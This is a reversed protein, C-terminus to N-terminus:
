LHDTVNYVAIENHILNDLTDFIVLGEFEDTLQKKITPLLFESLEIYVGHGRSLLKKCIKLQHSEEFINVGKKYSVHDFYFPLVPENDRILWNAIFDIHDDNFQDILLGLNYRMGNAAAWHVMARNDRPYCPGGYGFGFQWQNNRKIFNLYQMATHLDQKHGSALLMQGIMNFFSIEMTARCNGALKMIETTTSDMVYIPVDSVMLKAFVAKVQDAVLHNSTGISLTHPDRIDRMVSGQASFTPCYVVHVGHSHLSSQLDKCTGPNVTSGIVLIKNEVSEKHNVFDRAVSQVASVDYDGRDTSPTAVLVYIFDCQRIIEHNDVTFKINSRSLLPQIDPELSEIKKSQLQLVYDSKYSSAWVTFGCQEFALAYALGLRGVGIVGINM